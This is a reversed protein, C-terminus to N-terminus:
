KWGSVITVHHTAPKFPKWYKKIYDICCTVVPKTNKKTQKFEVTKDGYKLKATKGDDIIAKFSKLQEQGEFVVIRAKNKM